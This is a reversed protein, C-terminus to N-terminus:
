WRSCWNLAANAHSRGNPRPPRQSAPEPTEGSKEPQCILPMTVTSEPRGNVGCYEAPSKAVSRGFRTPSGYALMGAPRHNLGFANALGTAVAALGDDIYPFAPRLM